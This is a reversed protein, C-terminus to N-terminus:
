AAIEGTEADVTLRGERKPAELEQPAPFHIDNDCGWAFIFELLEACEKRTLNSTRRFVIDIGHGDLAPLMEIHEGRARLWAATLLRKWTDIDRKAGAWEINKSIHGLMAHLMRNEADSRKEQRIELIMRSGAMLHAKLTPWLQSKMAGHAQVPNICTIQMRTM